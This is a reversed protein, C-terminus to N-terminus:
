KALLRDWRPDSPEWERKTWTRLNTLADFRCSLKSRALRLLLARDADDRIEHLIFVLMRGLRGWDGPDKGAALLDRALRRVTRHLLPDKMELALLSVLESVLVGEKVGSLHVQVFVAARWGKPDADRLARALVLKERVEHADLFWRTLEPACGEPVGACELIELHERRSFGPPLKRIAALLAKSEEGSWDDIAM